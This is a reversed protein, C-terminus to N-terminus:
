STNTLIDTLLGPNKGAWANMMLTKLTDFLPRDQQVTTKLVSMLIATAQAGRQSRSGGTIKRIVVAPRLAREAANNDPPVTPDWLFVTLEKAHKRLRKAIRNADVEGWATEALAALREELRRGHREYLSKKQKSRQKALLLLEKVLRKLRRHFPGAAFVANRAATDRLERLLHVLCKQKRCDISMYGGYFDSVLTGGFVDGLLSRVVKQGRSGDIHFLTHHPDLLTWLWHNKGNVRWGTEDMHVTPAFRLFVRLRDYEGLLWRGMRQIQRAVAGPSVSLGPLDMMLQSVLRYPLRYRVRML